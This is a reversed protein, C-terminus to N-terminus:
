QPDPASYLTEVPLVDAERGTDEEFPVGYADGPPPLVDAPDPVAYATDYVPLVDRAPGADADDEPLPVGYAEYGQPAPDPESQELCGGMALGAGLAAPLAVNRLGGRVASRVRRDLDACVARAIARIEQETM